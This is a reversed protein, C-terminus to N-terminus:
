KHVVMRLSFALSLDICISAFPHALIWDLVAIM